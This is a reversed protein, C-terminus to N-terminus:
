NLEHIEIYLEADLAKAWQDLTELSMNRRGMELNFISQTKWGLKTALEPQTLGFRERRSRLISRVITEADLKKKKQGRGLNEKSIVEM